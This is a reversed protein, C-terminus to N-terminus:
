NKVAMWLKVQDDADYGMPYPLAWHHAWCVVLALALGVLIDDLKDTDQLRDAVVADANSEWDLALYVDDMWHM